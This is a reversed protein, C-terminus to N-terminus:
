YYLSKIGNSCVDGNRTDLLTDKLVNIKEYIELTFSHGMSLEIERGFPNTFVVKLSSFNELPKDEFIFEYETKNLIVSKLPIQNLYIKAFLNDANKKYKNVNDQSLYFIKSYEKEIVNDKNDELRELQGSISQINNPFIKMFIFPLSKFYFKGNYNEINLKNQPSNNLTLERVIESKNITNFPSILYDQTNSHIFKYVSTVSLIESNLNNITIFGLMDLITTETKSCTDDNEMISVDKYLKFPMARGMNPLKNEAEDNSENLNLFIDNVFYRYREDTYDFNCGDIQKRWKMKIFQELSKNLIFNGQQITNIIRGSSNFFNNNTNGSSVKLEIRMLQVLEIGFIGPPCTENNILIIRDFIKYTSIYDPIIGGYNNKYIEEHFFCTYNIDEKIIGGISPLNTFVLPYPNGNNVDNAFRQYYNERGDILITIYIRNKKLIHESPPVYRDIKFYSFLRDIQGVKGLDIDNVFTQMSMIAVKELRNVIEVKHSNKNISLNFISQNSINDFSTNDDSFPKEIFKRKTNVFAKGDENDNETSDLLKIYDPDYLNKIGHLSNQSIKSTFYNPFSEIDIFTNPFSYSYILQKFDCNNVDAIESFLLSNNKTPILLNDSGTTYLEEITPYGWIFLNNTINISPISNPFYFDKLKIKQVNEFKNQLDFIYNNSSTYISKNRDESYVSIATKRIKFYKDEAIDRMADSLIPFSNKNLHSHFQGNRFKDLNVQDISLLNRQLYKQTNNTTNKRFKNVQNININSNNFKKINGDDKNIFKNTYLLDNYNSM